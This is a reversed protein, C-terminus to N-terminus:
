ASPLRGESIVALISSSGGGAERGKGDIAKQSETNWPGQQGLQGKGEQERQPWVHEAEGKTLCSSAEHFKRKLIARPMKKVLGSSSLGTFPWSPCTKHYCISLISCSSCCLAPPCFDQLVPHCPCSPSPNPNSKESYLPVKQHLVVRTSEMAESSHCVGPLEKPSHSAPGPGAWYCPVSPLRGPVVAVLKAFPIRLRDCISM